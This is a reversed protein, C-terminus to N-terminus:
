SRALPTHAQRLEFWGSRTPAIKYEDDSWARHGRFAGSCAGEYIHRPFHWNLGREDPNNVISLGTKEEAQRKLMRWLKSLELLYQGGKVKWERFQEWFESGKTHQMLATFLIDQEVPICLEVGEDERVRWWVTAGREPHGTSHLGPAGLDDIAADDPAPAGLEGEINEIVQGLDAFHQLLAEHVIQIRAQRTVDQKEALERYRKATTRHIGLQRGIESDNRGERSLKLAKDRLEKKSPKKMKRRCTVYAVNMIGSNISM